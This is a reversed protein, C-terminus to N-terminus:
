ISLFDHSPNDNFIYANLVKLSETTELGDFTIDIEAHEFLCGFFKM